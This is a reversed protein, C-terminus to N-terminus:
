AKNAHYNSKHLLVYSFVAMLVGLMDCFFDWLEASRYPFFKWQILEIALGTGGTIVIIIFITLLSFSYNRQELIKGYFLLVTLVFFFGLHVLKDFGEFFFGTGSSAPMKMCCLIVILIAWAITWGQYKIKKLLNM